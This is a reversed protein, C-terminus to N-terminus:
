CGSRTIGRRKTPFVSSSCTLIDSPRQSVWRKTAGPGANYSPIALAPCAPYRARSDALYRCGLAISTAPIKVTAESIPLGLKKGVNKATDM